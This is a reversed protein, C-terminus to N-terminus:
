NVSYKVPIYSTGLNQTCVSAHTTPTYWVREGGGKLFPGPSSAVAHGSLVAYAPRRILSNGRGTEREFELQKLPDISEISRHFPGSDISYPPPPRHGARVRKRVLQEGM